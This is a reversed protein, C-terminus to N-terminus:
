SKYSVEIARQLDFVPDNHFILEGKSSKAYSNKVLEETNDKKAKCKDLLKSLIEIDSKVKKYRREITELQTASHKNHKKVNYKGHKVKLRKVDEKRIEVTSNKAIYPNPLIFGCTYQRKAIKNLKAHKISSRVGFKRSDESKKEKYLVSFNVNAPQILQEKVESKARPIVQETNTPEPSISTSAKFLFIEKLSNKKSQCTLKIVKNHNHRNYYKVESKKKIKGLELTVNNFEKKNILDSFSLSKLNSSISNVESCTSQRKRSSLKIQPIVIKEKDKAKKEMLLAYLKYNCDVKCKINFMGKKKLLNRREKHKNTIEKIRKLTSEYDKKAKTNHKLEKM